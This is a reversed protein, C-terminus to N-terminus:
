DKSQRSQSATRRSRHTRRNLYHWSSALRKVRELAVLRSALAECGILDATLGIGRVFTRHPHRQQGCHQAGAKARPNTARCAIGADAGRDSGRGTSAPGRRGAGAVGRVILCANLLLVVVSEGLAHVRLTLL